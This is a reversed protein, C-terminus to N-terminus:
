TDILIGKMKILEIFRGPTAVVIEPADEKLSKAMEYKGPGGYVAVARINYLKSFKLIETYIQQVLERTPALIIGIPGDGSLMQPQNIVHIIM